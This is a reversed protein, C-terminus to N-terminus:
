KEYRGRLRHKDSTRVKRAAQVAALMTSLFIEADELHFAQLVVDVEEECTQNNIGLFFYFGEKEVEDSGSRGKEIEHSVAGVLRDEGQISHIQCLAEEMGTPFHIKEKEM